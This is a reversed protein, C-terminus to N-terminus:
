QNRMYETTRCYFTTRRAFFGDMYEGQHLIINVEWNYIKNYM